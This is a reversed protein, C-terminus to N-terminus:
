AEAKKEEPKEADEEEGPSADKKGAAPEEEPATEKEKAATAEDNEVPKVTGAPAGLMHEVEAASATWPTKATLLTRGVWLVVCAFVFGTIYWLMNEAPM